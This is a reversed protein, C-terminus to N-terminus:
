MCTCFPICILPINAGPYIGQMDLDCLEWENNMDLHLKITDNLRSHPASGVRLSEGYGGVVIINGDPLLCSGHGYRLLFPIIIIIICPHNQLLM